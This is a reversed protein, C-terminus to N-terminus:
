GFVRSESSIVTATQNPPSALMRIFQIPGAFLM